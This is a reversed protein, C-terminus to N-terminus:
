QKREVTKIVSRVRDKREGEPLRKKIEKLSNIIHKQDEPLSDYGKKSGVVSIKHNLLLYEAYLDAQRKSRIGERAEISQELFQDIAKKAFGMRYKKSTPLFCGQAKKVEEEAKKLLLSSYKKSSKQLNHTLFSSTKNLLDADEIQTLGDLKKVFAAAEDIQDISLKKEEADLSVRGLLRNISNKQTEGMSFSEANLIDKYEELLHKDLGKELLSQLIFLDIGSPFIEHFLLIESHPIKKNLNEKIFDSFAKRLDQAAHQSKVAKNINEFLPLYRTLVAKVEPTFKESLDKLEELLQNKLFYHTLAIDQKEKLGLPLVGKEELLKVAEPDLLKKPRALTKKIVEVVQREEKLNPLKKQIAEKHSNIFESQARAKVLDIKSLVEASFMKKQSPPISQNESAVLKASSSIPTAPEPRDLFFLEEKDIPKHTFLAEKADRAREWSSKFEGGKSFFNFVRSVVTRIKQLWPPGNPGKAFAEIKEYVVRREERSEKGLPGEILSKDAATRAIEETKKACKQDFGPLWASKNDDLAKGLSYVEQRFKSSYPEPQRNRDPLKNM